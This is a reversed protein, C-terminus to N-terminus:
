IQKDEIRNYMYQKYIPLPDKPATLTIFSTIGGILFCPPPIITFMVDKPPLTDKGSFEGYWAVLNVRSPRDSDICYGSSGNPILIM